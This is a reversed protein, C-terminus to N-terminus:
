GGSEQINIEKTKNDISMSNVVKLITEGSRM